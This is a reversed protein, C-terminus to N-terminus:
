PTKENITNTSKTIALHCAVDAAAYSSRGTRKRCGNDNVCSLWALDSAVFKFNYRTYLLTQCKLLCIRVRTTWLGRKTPPPKQRSFSKVCGSCTQKTYCRLVASVKCIDSKSKNYNLLYDPILKGLFRFNGRTLM